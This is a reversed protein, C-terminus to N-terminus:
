GDGQRCHSGRRGLLKAAATSHEFFPGADAVGSSGLTFVIPPTGVDLFRVLEPSMGVEDGQDSFPFGSVVTQPPWDPQKRAFLESFMALVLSPSYAGEFLPNESTPPLGIQARLHHWPEGWSRCSRKALGWLVGHFVPGLFRLKSVFPMQPLVPPDYVSFFGLPQLLSAAWPIGKKEAVLRTAYTLM